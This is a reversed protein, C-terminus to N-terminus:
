EESDDDNYYDDVYKENYLVGDRYEEEPLYPNKKPVFATLDMPQNMTNKPQPSKGANHESKGNM